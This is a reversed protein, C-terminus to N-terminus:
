GSAATPGLGCSTLTRDVFRSVDPVWMHGIHGGDYWLAEPRGWHHWLAAGQEVPHALRDALGAFLFRREVPTAPHFELPSVVRHLVAAEDMLARFRPQHRVARPTNREFLRPFDVAPSGALVADLPQELGAVLAVLYGGLSFGYLGIAPADQQRIWALLRRVDWAAQALGHINDVLDLGPFSAGAAKPPRRRGHLPLMPLAVNLGLDDHLHGVRFMRTDASPRGSGAGHICVVWPRPAGEHRLLLVRVRENAEYSLWRDRGPEGPRPAWGSTFRLTAYEAGQVKRAGVVADDPPPPDDHFTRPRALWGEAEYFALAEGTEREVREFSAADLGPKVAQFTGIALEDLAAHAILRPSRTPVPVSQARHTQERLRQAEPSGFRVTRRVIRGASAAWRGPTMRSPSSPVVGARHDDPTPGPDDTM